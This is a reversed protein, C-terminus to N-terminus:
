KSYVIILDSEPICHEQSLKYIELFLAELEDIDEYTQLIEYVPTQDLIYVKHAIAIPM